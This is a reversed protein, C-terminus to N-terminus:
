ITSLPFKFNLFQFESITPLDTLRDKRNAVQTKTKKKYNSFQFHQFKSFEFHPNNFSQVESHESKKQFNSFNFLTSSPCWFIIFLGVFLIKLINSLFNVDILFMFLSIHSSTNKWTLSDRAGRLMGVGVGAGSWKRPPCLSSPPVDTSHAQPLRTFEGATWQCCGGRSILPMLRTIWAM